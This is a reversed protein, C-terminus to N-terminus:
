TLTFTLIASSGDPSAAVTPAKVNADKLWTNLEVLRTTDRCIAVDVKVELTQNGAAVAKVLANGIEKRLKGFASKSMSAARQARQARAIANRLMQSTPASSFEKVTTM